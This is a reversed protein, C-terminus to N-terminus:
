DGVADGMQAGGTSNGFYKGGAGLFSAAGNIYGATIASAASSQDLVAQNQYNMAKIKSQNVINQRDLEANEASAGLVSLVSGSNMRVGSAAFQAGQAGIQQRARAEQRYADYDGAELAVKANENALNAQADLLSAQQEGGYIAGLGGVVGGAISLGSM